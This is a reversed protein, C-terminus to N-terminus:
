SRVRWSIVTRSMAASVPKLLLLTLRNCAFSRASPRSYAPCPKDWAVKNRDWGEPCRLGNALLPKLPSTGSDWARPVPCIPCYRALRGHSLRSLPGRDRSLPRPVEPSGVRDTHPDSFVAGHGIGGRRGVVAGLREAGRQGGKGGDFELFFAKGRGLQVLDATPGTLRDSVGGAISPFEAQRLLRVRPEL